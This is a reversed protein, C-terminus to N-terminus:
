VSGGDVGERVKLIKKFLKGDKEPSIDEGWEEKSTEAPESCAPNDQSGTAPTADAEDAMTERGGAVVEQLRTARTSFIRSNGEVHTGYTPAGM